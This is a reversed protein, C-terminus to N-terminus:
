AIDPTSAIISHNRRFFQRKERFMINNHLKQLLKLWFALMKALINPSFTKYIM